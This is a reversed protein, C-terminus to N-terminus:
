NIEPPNCIIWEKLNKKTNTIRGFVVEKEVKSLTDSIWRGKKNQPFLETLDNGNIALDRKSQITLNQEARELDKLALNWNEFLNRGVRIFGPFNAKSLKYVLWQDIGKKNFYNLASTLNQAEKKEKNSCKWAKVWELLDTDKSKFSFLAIVEGFSNLPLLPTSLNEILNPHKKIVPLHKYIGTDKLYFIGQEIYDGAFFKTMENKIREVALSEIENKVKKMDEYTAPEISLGLHSVFRLARIIRLPDETFRDFGKGVTRIMKDILDKKGDFLDIIEGQKDMAMANITFDRRRLDEEISTVFEVHDPHRQDSYKGDLRFTTVEYSAHNYRVIVTGHEIGVPIVKEFLSQIHEPSASTTIDVDGIERGLLLDRVSGGVFFAQYGSEEIKELLKIGDLFSETIM